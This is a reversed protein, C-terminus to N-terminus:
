KRYAEFLELYEQEVESFPQFDYTIDVHVAPAPTIAPEKLLETLDYWLLDDDIAKVIRAEEETLPTNLYKQFIVTLLQEELKQYNALNKKFPRPVDSLYAETADHLLCALVIRNSFGRLAAEKACRICHQGVSFFQHVHGNGRCIFSLAHAIDEMHIQEPKPDLPYFRTGSYTLISDAM